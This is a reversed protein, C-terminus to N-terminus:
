TDMFEHNPVAYKLTKLLPQAAPERRRLAFLRAQGATLDVEIRVLRHPWNRDALWRHGLCEVRGQSDARRLFIVTGQLPRQFNPAFAAPLPRRAPAAAIRCASQEIAAQVFARSRRQLSPLNRHHFRRWVRAEWRGNYAEVEAQFGPERPPAFIPSVGLQLCLRIVRGFSDPWQHAGQFITDNDFKAYGPTGYERWHELLREVVIKATIKPEPWSGPLGGHLSMANLVTVDRGGRIVLDTIADFGDIEARGAAVDPLYWGKPPPPRRVRRRGDLVGNRALIRGITRVCPISAAQLRRLEAAIVTAGCDGL